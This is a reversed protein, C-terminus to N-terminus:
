IFLCCNIQKLFKRNYFQKDNENQLKFLLISNERAKLLEKEWMLIINQKIRTMM